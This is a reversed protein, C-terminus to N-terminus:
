RKQLTLHRTCRMNMVTADLSPGVIRGNVTLWDTQDESRPWTGVTVYQMKGSFSGDAAIQVPVPATRFPAYTFPYDFRGDRVTVSLSDDPPDCFFGFGRVLRNDGAYVGDFRNGAAQMGGPLAACGAALAALAGALPLFLRGLRGLLATRPM